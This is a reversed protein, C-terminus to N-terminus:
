RVILGTTQKIYETKVADFTKTIAAVATQSIEFQANPDATLVWPILGFGQKDLMVGHPKTVVYARGEWVEVLKAVVEDGSVLKMTVIDNEKVAM